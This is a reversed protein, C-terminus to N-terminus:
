GVNPSSQCSRPKNGIRGRSAVGALGVLGSGFLWAAAPIPVATYTVLFNGASGEPATLELRVISSGMIEADGSNYLTDSNSGTDSEFVTYTLGGEERPGASYQFDIQTVLAQSDDFTFVATEGSLFALAAPTSLPNHIEAGDDSLLRIFSDLDLGESPIVCEKPEPGCASELDIMLTAALVTNAAFAMLGAIAAPITTTMKM